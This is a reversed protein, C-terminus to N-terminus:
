KRRLQEPPEWHPRQPKTDILGIDRKLHDDLRSVAIRQRYRADLALLGDRMWRLFSPKRTM